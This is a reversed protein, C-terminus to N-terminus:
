KLAEPLVAKLEEVTEAKEIGPDQTVDRLAQKKAAIEDKLKLDGVEDARMYEYDLQELKPARLERLTIKHLERAHVMDYKFEGDHRLANRFTRDEPIDKIDILEWSLIPLKEKDFSTASKIIEKEIEENTAERELGRHDNTVFSMIGITNDSFRLVIKVQETIQEM